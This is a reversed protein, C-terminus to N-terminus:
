PTLKEVQSEFSRLHSQSATMLAVFTDFVDRPLGYGLFAEYMAINDIEAQVGTEAAELLDKPIVLHEGSTDAPVTLGYTAYLEKLYAIHTEESRVINTYPRVNGFKTIIAAYEGRALHEDQIAYMLMDAITMEEDSLAGKAGYGVLSLVKDAATLASSPAVTENSTKPAATCASLLLLSGIALVMVLLTTGGRHDSLRWKARTRM